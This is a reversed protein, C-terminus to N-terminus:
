GGAAEPKEPRGFISMLEILGRQLALSVVALDECLMKGALIKVWTEDPEMLEVDYHGEIHREVILVM